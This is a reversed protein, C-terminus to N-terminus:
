CIESFIPRPFTSTVHVWWRCDRYSVRSAAKIIRRIFWEISRKVDEGQLNSERIMHLLNCAVAGM